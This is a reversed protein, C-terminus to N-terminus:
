YREPINRNISLLRGQKVTIYGGAKLGALIQFVYSRSLRTRRLIFAAIGENNLTNKEAKYLYRYLMERITAYGSDNNREYYVHILISSMYSMIQSFLTAREPTALFVMDAEEATLQVLTTRSETRYHLGQLYYREILGIPMYRFTHGLMLGDEMDDSISMLGDAVVLVEGNRPQLIVGPEFILERGTRALQEDLHTFDIQQYQQETVEFSSLSM